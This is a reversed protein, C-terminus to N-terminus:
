DPTMVFARLCLSVFFVPLELINQQGTKKTDKHRRAKTTVGLWIM